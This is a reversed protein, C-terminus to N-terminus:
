TWRALLFLGRRTSHLKKWLLGLNLKYIYYCLYLTVHPLWRSLGTNTPVFVWTSYSSFDFLNYKDLYNWVTADFLLRWDCTQKCAERKLGLVRMLLFMQMVEASLVAPCADTPRKTSKNRLATFIRSLLHWSYCVDLLFPQRVLRIIIGVNRPFSQLSDRCDTYLIVNSSSVERIRM